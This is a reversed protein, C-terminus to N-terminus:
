PKTDPVCVMAQLVFVGGRGDDPQLVRDEVGSLQADEDFLVEGRLEGPSGFDIGAEGDVKPRSREMFRDMRVRDLVDLRPANMKAVMQVAVSPNAIAWAAGGCACVSRAGVLCDAGDLFVVGLVNWCLFCGLVDM